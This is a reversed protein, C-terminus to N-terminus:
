IASKNEVFRNDADMQMITQMIRMGCVNEVSAKCTISYLIRIYNLTYYLRSYICRRIVGICHLKKLPSCKYIITELHIIVNKFFTNYM